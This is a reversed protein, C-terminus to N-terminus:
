LKVAKGLGAYAVRRHKRCYPVRNEFDADLAGCFYFEPTGPDGYPWRCTRNTLELLSCPRCEAIAPNPKAPLPPLSEKPPKRFPTTREPTPASYKPPRPRRKRADRPTPGPSHKWQIRNRRAAGIVANRTRGLEIAAERASLGRLACDRLADLSHNTWSM